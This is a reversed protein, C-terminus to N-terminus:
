QLNEQYPLSERVHVALSGEKEVIYVTYGCTQARTLSLQIERMCVRECVCVCVCECVCM